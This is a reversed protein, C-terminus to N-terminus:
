FYSTTLKDKDVHEVAVVVPFIDVLTHVMKSQGALGFERKSVQTLTYVWFYM